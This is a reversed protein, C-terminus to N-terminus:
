ANSGTPPAAMRSARPEARVRRSTFVSAVPDRLACHAATLVWMDGIYAGGCRHIREWNPMERLRGRNEDTAPLAENAVFDAEGYIYTTYLEVQWPTPGAINGGTITAYENPPRHVEVPLAPAINGPDVAVNARRAPTQTVGTPACVLLALTAAISSALSRAM